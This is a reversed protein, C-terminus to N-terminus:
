VDMFDWLVLQANRQYVDVLCPGASLVNVRTDVAPAWTEPTDSPRKDPRVLGVRGGGTMADMLWIPSAGVGHDARCFIPGLVHTAISNEPWFMTTGALGERGAMVESASERRSVLAEDVM